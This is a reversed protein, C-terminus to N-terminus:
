VIRDYINGVIEIDDKEGIIYEEGSYKLSLARFGDSTDSYSVYLMQNWLTHKILDGEFIYEGHKDVKNTCQCITYPNVEVQIDGLTVNLSAPSYEPIIFIRIRGGINIPILSGYVWGGTKVSKGRFMVNRNFFNKKLENM